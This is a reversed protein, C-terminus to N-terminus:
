VEKKGALGCLIKSTKPIVIFFSNVVSSSEKPHSKAVETFSSLFITKAQLIAEAYNQIIKTKNKLRYTEDKTKWWRYDHKWGQRWRTRPNSFFLALQISMPSHPTTQSSPPCYVHSSNPCHKLLGEDVQDTPHTNSNKLLSKFKISDIPRWPHVLARTAQLGSSYHPHHDSWFLSQITIDEISPDLM